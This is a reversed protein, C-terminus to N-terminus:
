AARNRARLGAYSHLLLAEFHRRRENLRQTVSRPPTLDIPRPLTLLTSNNM